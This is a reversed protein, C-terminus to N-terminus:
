SFSLTPMTTSLIIIIMTTSLVVICELMLPVVMVGMMGTLGAAVVRRVWIAAVLVVVVGRSVM